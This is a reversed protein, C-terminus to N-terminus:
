NVFRFFHPYVGQGGIGGGKAYQLIYSHYIFLLLVNNCLYCEIIIIIFLTAIDIYSAYSSCNTILVVVMVSAVSLLVQLNRIPGLM